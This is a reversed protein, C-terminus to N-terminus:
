LGREALAEYAETVWGPPEPEDRLASPLGLGVRWRHLWSVGWKRTYADATAYAPDRVAEALTVFTYGREALRQIMAGLHDANIRNAHLLFVQPVERGFTEASLGEAFAFAADLQALYARGTRRAIATDGRALADRYVANFLWDAHEVTFPALRVGDRDLAAALAARSEASAGLDNYPARFFAAEGSPGDGEFSGEVLRQGRETDALYVAPDTESYRLHSHGHNHLVHGADRWRRLLGRRAEAEGDVEVNAGTVFVDAVAGHAALADLLADTVREAEALETGSVVPLDDFTVAVTRQAQAPTALHVLAVAALLLLRPM